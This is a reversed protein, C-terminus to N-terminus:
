FTIKFAFLIFSAIAILLTIFAMFNSARILRNYFKRISEKRDSYKKFQDDTMKHDMHIGYKYKYCNREILNLSVRNARMSLLHSILNIILCSLFAFMSFRAMTLDTKMDKTYNLVFGLGATSLAIMMTDFQKVAYEQRNKADDTAKDLYKIYHEREEKERLLKQEPTESITEQDTIEPTTTDESM